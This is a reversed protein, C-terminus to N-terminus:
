VGDSEQGDIRERDPVGSRKMRRRRKRHVDSGRLVGTQEVARPAGSNIIFPGDGHPATRTFTIFTLSTHHLLTGALMWPNSKNGTATHGGTERVKIGCCCAVSSSRTNIGLPNVGPPQPGCAPTLASLRSPACSVGTFLFHLMVWFYITLSGRTAPHPQMSRPYFM